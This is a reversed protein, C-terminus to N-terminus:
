HAPFLFPPPRQFLSPEFTSVTDSANSESAAPTLLRWTVLLPVAFAATLLALAGLLWVILQLGM